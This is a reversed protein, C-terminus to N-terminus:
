PAVHIVCDLISERRNPKIGDVALLDVPRQLLAELRQALHMFEFGVPRSFDVLLDVDSTPTQEQRAFSGFLALSSVHFREALEPFHARLVAIVESSCLDTKAASPDM